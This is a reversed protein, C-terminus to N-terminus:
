GQAINTMDGMVSRPLLPVFLQAVKEIGIDGAVRHRDIPEV